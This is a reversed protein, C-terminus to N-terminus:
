AYCNVLFFSRLKSKFTRATVSLKDADRAGYPRQWLYVNKKNKSVNSFRMCMFCSIVAVHEKTM